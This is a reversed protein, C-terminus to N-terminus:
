VMGMKEIQSLKVALLRKRLPSLHDVFMIGNLHDIEHQLVVALMGEAEIEHDHGSEDQYLVKIKEPRTVDENIGPISLCGEEMTEVEASNEMIRPNVFAEYDFMEDILHRDVVLLQICHNVQPAALGIGDSVRMTEVMDAILDKLKDDFQTVKRCVKRLTSHGYTVIGLRSM